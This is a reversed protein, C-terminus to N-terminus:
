GNASNNNATAAHAAGKGAGKGGGKGPTFPTNGDPHFASGTRAAQTAAAAIRGAHARADNREQMGARPPGGRGAGRGRGAGQGKPAIMQVTKAVSTFEDKKAKYATLCATRLVMAAEEVKLMCALLPSLETPVKFTAKGNVSTFLAAFSAKAQTRADVVDPVERKVQFALAQVNAPVDGEPISDPFALISMTIAKHALYVAPALEAAREAAFWDDLVKSGEVLADNINKSTLHEGPVFFGHFRVSVKKM